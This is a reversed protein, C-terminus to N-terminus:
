AATEFSFSNVRFYPHTQTASIQGLNRGNVYYPINSCKSWHTKPSCSANGSLDMHTVHWWPTWLPKVLHRDAQEPLRFELTSIAAHSENWSGDWIKLYFQWSYEHIPYIRVLVNQVNKSYMANRSWDLSTSVKWLYQKALSTFRGAQSQREGVLKVSTATGLNICTSITKLKFMDKTNRKINKRQKSKRWLKYENEKCWEKQQWTILLVIGYESTNRNLTITWVNAILVPPALFEVSQIFAVHSNLAVEHERAM